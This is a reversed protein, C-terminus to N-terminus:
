RAAWFAPSATSLIPEPGTLSRSNLESRGLIPTQPTRDAIALPSFSNKLLSALRRPFKTCSRYYSQLSCQRRRSIPIYNITLTSAHHRTKKLQCPM